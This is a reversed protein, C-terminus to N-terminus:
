DLALLYILCVKVISARAIAENLDEVVYTDDKAGKELRILTLYEKVSSHALQIEKATGRNVLAVLSSYYILVEKSVLMRNKRDFYSRNGM